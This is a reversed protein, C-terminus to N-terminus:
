IHLGTSSLKLNDRSLTLRGNGLSVSAPAPLLYERRWWPTEGLTPTAHLLLLLLLARM